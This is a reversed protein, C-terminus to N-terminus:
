WLLSGAPLSIGELTLLSRKVELLEARDGWGGGYGGLSGDAAIVRHCPVVLGIPNRGVAGGVARAAGPAGIARALRGYSTVHGPPIRRVTALVRRDWAPIAGLDIPLDLDTRHGAFYADVTEAARDLLRRHRETAADSRGRMDVMGRGIRRAVGAEFAADTTRVALGVIATGDTALHIPGFPSPIVSIAVHTRDQV